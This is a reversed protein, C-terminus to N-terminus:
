EAVAPLVEPCCPCPVGDEVLHTGDTMDGRHIHLPRQRGTKLVWSEVVADRGDHQDVHLPEAVAPEGDQTCPAWMRHVVCAGALEGTDADLVPTVICYAM